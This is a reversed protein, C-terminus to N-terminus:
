MYTGFFRGLGRASFRGAVRRGARRTVTGGTLANWDGWYKAIMYLTGRSM